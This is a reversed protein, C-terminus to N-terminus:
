MKYYKSKACFGGIIAQINIILHVAFFSEQIFIRFM